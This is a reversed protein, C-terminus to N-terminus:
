SLKKEARKVLSDLRKIEVRVEDLERELAAERDKAINRDRRDYELQAETRSVSM